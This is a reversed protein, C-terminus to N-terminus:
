HAINKFNFFITITKLLIKIDLNISKNELYYKEYEIKKKPSNNDRGNVQAWGTIGPNLNNGNFKERESLLKKETYLLPRPGIFSMKGMIISWLQPIEDISTKRIFNGVKTIYQEPEKLTQTSAIPTNTVMSRFKPMFFLKKRKGYRRSWFLVNGRTEIKIILAVLLLFPLLLMLLIFAIIPEIKIFRFSKM